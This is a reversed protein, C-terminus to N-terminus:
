NIDDIVTIKKLKNNTGVIIKKPINMVDIMNIFEWVVCNDGKMYNTCIFYGIDFDILLPSCLETYHNRDVIDFNITDYKHLGNTLNVVYQVFKIDTNITENILTTFINEDVFPRASDHIVVNKCKFNNKIYEFGCIISELRSDKDNVVIYSNNYKKTIEYTKEKNITNTIIVVKDFIKSMIELSHLLIPKDNLIYLQKPQILTYTNSFRIGNGGALLIGITNDDNNTTITKSMDINLKVNNIEIRVKLEPKIHGIVNNIITLNMSKSIDDTFFLDYNIDCTLYKNIKKNLLINSGYYRFFDWEPSYNDTLVLKNDILSLYKNNKKICGDQEFDWKIDYSTKPPLLLINSEINTLVLFLYKPNTNILNSSKCIEVRSFDISTNNDHKKSTLLKPNNQIHFENNWLIPGFENFDCIKFKIEDM